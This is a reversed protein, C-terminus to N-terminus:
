HPIRPLAQAAFRAATVCPGTVSLVRGGALPVAVSTSEYRLCWGAHGVPQVRFARRAHRRLSALRTHEVVLTVQRESGRMAYVCTPGRPEQSVEVAGGLIAAARTRPVLGCPKVPDAGTESIEDNDPGSPYRAASPKQSTTSIPDPSRVVHGQWARSAEPTHGTHSRMATLEVGRREANSSGAPSFASGSFALLVVVALTALPLALRRAKTPM